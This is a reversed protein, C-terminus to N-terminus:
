GFRLKARSHLSDDTHLSPLSDTLRLGGGGRVNSAIDTVGAVIERRKQLCQKLVMAINNTNEDLSAEFIRASTNFPAKECELGARGSRTKQEAPDRDRSANKCKVANQHRNNIPEACGAGLLQTTRLVFDRVLSAFHGSALTAQDM